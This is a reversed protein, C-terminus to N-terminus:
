GNFIRSSPWCMFILITIWVIIPGYEAPMAAKAMLPSYYTNGMSEFNLTIEKEVSYTLCLLFIM